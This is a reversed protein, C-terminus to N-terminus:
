RGPTHTHTRAHANYLLGLRFFSHCVWQTVFDHSADQFAVTNRQLHATLHQPPHAQVIEQGTLLHPVM